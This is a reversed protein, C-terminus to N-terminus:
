LSDSITKLCVSHLATMVSDRVNKQRCCSVPNEEDAAATRDVAAEQTVQLHDPVGEAPLLQNRVGTPLM